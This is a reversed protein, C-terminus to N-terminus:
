RKKCYLEILKPDGSKKSLSSRLHTMSPDVLTADIKISSCNDVLSELLDTCNLSKNSRPYDFDIYYSDDFLFDRATIYAWAEENGRKINGASDLLDLSNLTDWESLRRPDDHGKLFDKKASLIVGLWLLTSGDMFPLIGSNTRNNVEKIQRRERLFLKHLARLSKETRSISEERKIRNEKKKHALSRLITRDIYKGLVEGGTILIKEYQSLGIIDQIEKVQKDGWFTLNLDEDQLDSHYKITALGYATKVKICLYGRIMWVLTQAHKYATKM